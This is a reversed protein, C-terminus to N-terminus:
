RSPSQTNIGGALSSLFEYPHQRLYCVSIDCAGQDTSERINWHAENVPIEPALITTGPPCEEPHDIWRLFHQEELLRYRMVGPRTPALPIEESSVLWPEGSTDGDVSGKKEMVRFALEGIKRAEFRGMKLEGCGIHIDCYGNTLAKTGDAPKVPVYSTRIKGSIQLDRFLTRFLTTRFIIASSGIRVPRGHDRIQAVQGALTEQASNLFRLDNFLRDAFPSPILVGRRAETFLQSNFTIELREMMRLIGKRDTNLDYGAATYDKTLYVQQFATFHRLEVPAADNLRQSLSDLFEAM